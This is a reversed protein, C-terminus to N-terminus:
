YGGNKKLTVLSMGYDEQWSIVSYDFGDYDIIAGYGKKNPLSESSAFFAIEAEEIENMMGSKLEKLIEKDEIVLVKVGEIYREIAFDKQELFVNKIDEKLMEKLTM